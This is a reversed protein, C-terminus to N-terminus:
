RTPRPSRRGPRRHARAREGDLQAACSPRSTTSCSPTAPPPDGRPPARLHRPRHRPPRRRRARDRDAPRRLGHRRRRRQPRRRDRPRRLTDTRRPHCCPEHSHTIPPQSRTRTPRPRAAPVAPRLRASRAPSALLARHAPHPRRALQPAPGASPPSRPQSGAPTTVARDPNWLTRGSRTSPHEPLAISQSSGVARFEFKNGTFAFPSTRNRDRTTRRRADPLVAVGLELMGGARSRERRARRSSRRPHRHAHRGPLDLHDGAAGRQRRPPPRQRRSAIAPASCTRTCTSPRIVARSSSSSSRTRTRRRARARAPEEGPRRDAVDVLQQAQGLRQHRRVAERAPASAPRAAARRQQMM